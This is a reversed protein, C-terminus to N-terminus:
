GLQQYVRPPLGVVVTSGTGAYSPEGTSAWAPTGSNSMAFEFYDTSSIALGSTVACLFWGGGVAKISSFFVPPAGIFNTATILGNLLDFVVTYNLSPTTFSVAMACFQATGAKMYAQFTLAGVINMTGYYIHRANTSNDTLTVASNGVPDFGASASSLNIPSGWSLALPTGM